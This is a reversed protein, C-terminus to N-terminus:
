VHNEMSFMHKETGKCDQRCELHFVYCIEMAHLM